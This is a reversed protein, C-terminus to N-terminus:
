SPNHQSEEYAILRVEKNAEKNLRTELAKIEDILHHDLRAATYRDDPIDEYM